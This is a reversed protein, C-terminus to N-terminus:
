FDPKQMYFCEGHTQPLIAVKQGNLGLTNKDDNDDNSSKNSNNNNNNKKKSSQLAPM